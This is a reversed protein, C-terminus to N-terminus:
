KTKFHIGPNMEGIRKLIALLDANKLWCLLYFRERGSKFRIFGIPLFPGEIAEIDRSQLTLTRRAGSLFISGDGELRIRYFIGLSFYWTFCLVGIIMILQFIDAIESRAAKAVLFLVAVCTWIILFIYFTAVFATPAQYHRSTV